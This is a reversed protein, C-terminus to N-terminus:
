VSDQRGEESRYEGSAQIQFAGKAYRGKPMEVFEGRVTCGRRSGSGRALMGM